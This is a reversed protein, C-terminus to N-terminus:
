WIDIWMRHLSSKQDYGNDGGGLGATDVQRSEGEWEYRWSCFLLTTLPQQLIDPRAYEVSTVTDSVMNGPIVEVLEVLLYLFLMSLAAM